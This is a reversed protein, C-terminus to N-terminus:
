YHKELYEIKEALDILIQRSSKHFEEIIYKIVSECSKNNPINEILENIKIM